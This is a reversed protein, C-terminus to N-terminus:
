EWTAERYLIYTLSALLDDPRGGDEVEEGDEHGGNTFFEILEDEGLTHEASNTHSHGQRGAEGGERLVKVLLTSSCTLLM